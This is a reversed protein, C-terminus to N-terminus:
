NEALHIFFHGGRRAAEVALAHIRSLSWDSGEAAETEILKASKGKLDLAKQWAVLCKKTRLVGGLESLPGVVGEPM